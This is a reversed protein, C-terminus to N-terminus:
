EGILEVRLSETGRQDQEGLPYKPAGHSGVRLGLPLLPESGEPLRMDEGLHGRCARGRAM